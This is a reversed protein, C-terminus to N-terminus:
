PANPSIIRSFLTKFYINIYHPISNDQVVVKDINSPIAFIFFSIYATALQFFPVIAASSIITYSAEPAPAEGEQEPYAENVSIEQFTHQLSQNFSTFLAIFVAFVLIVARNFFINNNSKKM